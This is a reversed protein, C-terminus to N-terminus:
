PSPSTGLAASVVNAAEGGCSFAEAIKGARIVAKLKESPEADQASVALLVASVLKDNEILNGNQM